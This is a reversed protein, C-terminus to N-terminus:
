SPTGKLSSGFFHLDILAEVEDPNNINRFTNPLNNPLCHLLSNKPLSKDELKAPGFELSGLRTTGERRRRRLSKRDLTIARSRGFKFPGSRKLSFSEVILGRLNTIAYIQHNKALHENLMFRMHVVGIIIFLLSIPTEGGSTAGSFLGWVCFSFWFGYFAIYPFFGLWGSKDATVDAWLLYENEELFPTVVSSIESSPKSSLDIGERGIDMM